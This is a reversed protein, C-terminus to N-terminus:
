DLDCMKRAELSDGYYEALFDEKEKPETGSVIREFSGDLYHIYCCEGKNKDIYDQVTQEYIMPTDAANYERAEYWRDGCCQCDEGNECGNFYLGIDEARADAHSASIAEVIVYQAIGQKESMTYGGGTNNQIYQYYKTNITREM